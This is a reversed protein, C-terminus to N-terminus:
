AQMEKTPPAPAAIPGLWLASQWYDDYASRSFVPWGYDMKPTWACLARQGGRVTTEVLAAMVEGHCPWDNAPQWVWYHGPVTPPETTWQPGYPEPKAFLPVLGTKYEPSPWVTVEIPFSQHIEVDCFAWNEIWGFPKAESM